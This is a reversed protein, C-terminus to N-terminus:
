GAKGGRKANELGLLAAGCVGLDANRAVVLDVCLFSTKMQQAAFVKKLPGLFHRSAKSVGGTLVVCDPNLMLLMDALGRGLSEGMERWIRLATRDGRDAARTLCVTNLRPRGPDAYRAIFAKQDKIAARAERMIAYSGCSAEMCGKGGCHCRPGSRSLKNHGLEGASGNAGHYLKGDIIIGGGIGTGLTVAVVNRYKRGLEMEYAGWAAMNADNELVCPLGARKELPRKVALGRWRDLNPSFRIVGLDPDVDGAAGVGISVPAWEDKLKKVAAALRRIFDEPGREPATDFRDERLVKKGSSMVILKTNTGGIDVGIGNM